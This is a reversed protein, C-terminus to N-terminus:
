SLCVFLFLLLKFWIYSSGPNSRSSIKLRMIPISSFIMMHCLLIFKRNEECAKIIPWFHLGYRNSISNICCSSSDITINALFSYELRLDLTVPNRSTDKFWQHGHFPVIVSSFLFFIALYFSMFIGPWVSM